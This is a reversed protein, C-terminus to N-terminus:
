DSQPNSKEEPPRLLAVSLGTVVLVALVHAVILGALLPQALLLPVFALQLLGFAATTLDAQRLGRRTEDDFRYTISRWLAVVGAWWAACVRYCVDWLLLLFLVVAPLRPETGVLSELLSQEPGDVVLLYGLLGAYSFVTLVLEANSGFLLQRYAAPVRERRVLRGIRMMQASGATAVVVATTGALAAWWLGYIWAVALVAAEFVVFQLVLAQRGDLNLGPFAIIGEYVWSEGHEPRSV